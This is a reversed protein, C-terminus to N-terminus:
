DSSEVPLIIDNRTSKLNDVVLEGRLLQRAVHLVCKFLRRLSKVRHTFDLRGSILVMKRISIRSWIIRSGDLVISLELIRGLFRLNLDLM